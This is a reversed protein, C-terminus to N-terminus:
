LGAMSRGGYPPPPVFPCGAEQADQYADTAQQMLRLNHTHARVARRAERQQRRGAASDIDVDSSMNEMANAMGMTGGQVDAQALEAYTEQVVTM